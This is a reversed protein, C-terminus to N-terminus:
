FPASNKRSSRSKHQRQNSRRPRRSRRSLYQLHNHEVGGLHFRTALKDIYSDQCLWLKRAKRDRVIRIGLFWHADGMHRMEFAKEMERGIAHCEEAHEPRSIWLIDDVYFVVFIRGNWFVCLEDSVPRLGLARGGLDRFWSHRGTFATCLGSSSSAIARNAM